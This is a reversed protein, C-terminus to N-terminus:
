KNVSKITTSSKEYQILNLNYKNNIHLNLIIKIM